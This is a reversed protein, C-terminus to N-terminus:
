ATVMTTSAATGVASSAVMPSRRLRGHGVEDDIAQDAGEGTMGRDAGKGVDAQGNFLALQQRHEARGATALGGQQAGDGAHFWWILSRYAQAVPFEVAGSGVDGGFVAGDAQDGLFARQERM